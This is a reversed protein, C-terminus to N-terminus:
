QGSVRGAEVAAGGGAALRADVSSGALVLRGSDPLCPNGDLLALVGVLLTLAQEGGYTSRAVLWVFM